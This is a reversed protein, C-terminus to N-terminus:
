MIGFLPLSSAKARRDPELCPHKREGSKNLMTPCTRALATLSSFSIFLMCVLFFCFQGGFTMITPFGLSDVFFSSKSIIFSNFLTVLYLILMYFDVTDGCVLLSSLSM